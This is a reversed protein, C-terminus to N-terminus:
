SVFPRQQNTYEVSLAAPEHVVSLALRTAPNLTPATTSLSVPGSAAGAAGAGGAQCNPILELTEFYYRSCVM